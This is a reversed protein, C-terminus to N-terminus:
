ASYSTRCPRPTSRISCTSPRAAAVPAASAVRHGNSSTARVYQLCVWVLACGVLLHVVLNFIHYARPELGSFAHQAAMSLNPLLRPRHLANLAVERAGSASVETWHFAPHDVFNPADDFYFGGELAPLYALATAAIGALLLAGGLRVSRRAPRIGTAEAESM